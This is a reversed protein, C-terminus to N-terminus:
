WLDHLNHGKRVVGLSAWTVNPAADSQIAVPRQARANTVKRLLFRDYLADLEESEPGENSAAVASLLPATRRAAGPGPWPSPRAQAHRPQAAFM